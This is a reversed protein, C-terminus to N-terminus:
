EDTERKRKKIFQGAALQEAMGEICLNMLAFMMKGYEMGSEAQIEDLSRPYFDLVELIRNMEESGSNLLAKMDGETKGEGIKQSHVMGTEELMEQVSILLGAGQCLLRNCGASLSDTVRGPVVYVERGQELALDATILTGSKERAEIILVLDAMGSIIRNRLPFLEPRPSTGPPWESLIGGRSKLTEYLKRNESPYCIDTGCGLIGCSFGDAQLAAWQSIGDIGRAMGSIVIIGSKALEQGCQEAMYRGYESCQRAGIVAVAPIKEEPLRGEVYIAYPPNGITKLRNPYNPHSIPYFHINQKKLVAYHEMLKEKDTERGAEMLSKIQKQTLIGKLDTEKMGYVAKASGAYIELKRKTQNGLGSCNALWYAYAQEEKEEKRENSM